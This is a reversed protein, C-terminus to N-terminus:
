QTPEYIIEMDTLPQGKPNGQRYVLATVLVRMYGKGGAGLYETHIEVVDGESVIERIDAGGFTRATMNRVTRRRVEWLGAADMRSVLWGGSVPSSMIDRLALCKPGLPPTVNAVVVTSLPQALRRRLTGRSVGYEIALQRLTVGTARKERIEAMEQNPINVYPRGIHTGRLRAAELGLRISESTNSVDSAAAQFLVEWDKIM